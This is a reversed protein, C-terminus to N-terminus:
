GVPPKYLNHPLRTAAARDILWLTRHRGRPGAAPVQVRGAGGLAMAVAKAKADGSAIFWVENAADLARFTLSLRTRPPKPANHVAIVPADHEYVGPHEPFLSACHGDPGIGLLVVDFHPVDEDAGAAQRQDVGVAQALEGAYAEAAAEVDDGFGADAAPMRHVLAPDLPLADLLAAYAARDNREASDSVVYREDGWWIHVRRWDVADRGRLERMAAMVQELIAGGTLALHAVARVSLASVLSAVLRGATNEALTESSPEVVIEPPTPRAAM